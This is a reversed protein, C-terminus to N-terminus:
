LDLRYPLLRIVANTRSSLVAALVIGRQNQLIRYRHHRPEVQPILVAVQEGDRCAREVYRVVPHVLSRYPSNVVDLRVGTPTEGAPRPQERRVCPVQPGFHRRRDPRVLKVGHRDSRQEM